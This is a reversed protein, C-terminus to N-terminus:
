DSINVMRRLTKLTSTIVCVIEVVEMALVIQRHYLLAQRTDDWLTNINVLLFMIHLLIIKYMMSSALPM